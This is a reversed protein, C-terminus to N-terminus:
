NGTALAEFTGRDVRVALVRGRGVQAPDRVIEDNGVTTVIAYGRELTAAPSISRLQARLSALNETASQLKHAVARTSRTRNIGLDQEARDLMATPQALGPHAAFRSILHQENDLQASVTRLARHRWQDIVAVQEALDPVIRSAADTPTSARIDAVYDLLPADQEHGIASVIPTVCGAAARILAEDSFPLLDEASGGGRTIVIVDVDAIGDLELLAVTVASAAANGQVAVERIVFEVAPWRRAANEVVDREAASGRGCILGIRRPLFPLSKKAADLFLGESALLVKLREVRALLDGLGVVAIVKARLVFSGRQTWFEPKAHMVIRTGDTLPPDIVDLVGPSTVVQVSVNQEMDRLQIYVQNAGSRRSIQTVQGEVWVAGLRSIWAAVAANIKHLPAPKEQSTEMSM